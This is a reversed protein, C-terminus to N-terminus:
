MPFLFAVLEQVMHAVTTLLPGLSPYVPVVLSLARVWVAVAMGSMALHVHEGQPPARHFATRNYLCYLCRPCVARHTGGSPPTRAATSFGRDSRPVNDRWRESGTCPFGNYPRHIRAGVNM